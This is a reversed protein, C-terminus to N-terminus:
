MHKKLKQWSSQLKTSFNSQPDQKCAELLTPTVKEIGSINLVADEPKGQKNLAEAVTIAAPQYTEKLTLFDHCTWKTVPKDNEIAMTATSYALLSTVGLILIQKKM